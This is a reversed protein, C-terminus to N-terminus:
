FLSKTKEGKKNQIHVGFPTNQKREKLLLDNLKVNVRVTIKLGRQQYNTFNDVHNYQAKIQKM